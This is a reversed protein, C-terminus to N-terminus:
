IAWSHLAKNMQETEDTISFISYIQSFLLTIGPFLAGNILQALTGVLIWVYENKQIKWLKMEYHFLGKKNKKSEKKKQDNIPTQNNNTVQQQSKSEAKESTIIVEDIKNDIKTSTTTDDKTQSTVM